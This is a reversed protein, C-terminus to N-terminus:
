KEDNGRQNVIEMLKAFSLIPMKRNGRTNKYEVYKKIAPYAPQYKQTGLYIFKHEWDTLRNQFVKSELLTLIQKASQAFLAFIIQEGDLTTQSWPKKIIRKNFANRHSQDFGLFTYLADIVGQQKDNILTGTPCTMATVGGASTHPSVLGENQSTSSREFTKFHSLVKQADRYSLETMSKKGTVNFVIEKRMEEVGHTKLLGFIRKRQWHQIPTAKPIAKFQAM